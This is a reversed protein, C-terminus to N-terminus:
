FLDWFTRYDDNAQPWFKEAQLWAGRQAFICALLPRRSDDVGALREEVQRLMRSSYPHGAEYRTGLYSALSKEIKAVFANAEDMLQKPTGEFPHVPVLEPEPGFIHPHQLLLITQPM